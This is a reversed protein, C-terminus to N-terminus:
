SVRATQAIDCRGAFEDLWCSVRGQVDLDSPVQGVIRYFHKGFGDHLRELWGRMTGLFERCAEPDLEHRLMEVADPGRQKRLRVLRGKEAKYLFGDLMARRLHGDSTFQYVRDPGFYFSASGDRRFGVVIDLGAYSKFQIREVLATAEALLDERDQEDRAM